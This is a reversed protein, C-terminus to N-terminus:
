GRVISLVLTRFPHLVISEVDGPQCGKLVGPAVASQVILPLSPTTQFCLLSVGAKGRGASLRQFRWGADIAPNGEMFTVSM